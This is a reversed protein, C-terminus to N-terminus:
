LTIHGVMLFSTSQTKIWVPLGVDLRKNSANKENLIVELTKLNRAIGHCFADILDRLHVASSDFSLAKMSSELKNAEATGWAYSIRRAKGSRYLDSDPRFTHVIGCRAAYLDLATCSFSRQKLLYNDVWRVFYAKTGEHPRAELSAIVEIGTYPLVLSPIIRRKALCDEISEILDMMHKYFTEM